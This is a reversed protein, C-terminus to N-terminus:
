TNRVVRSSTILSLRYIFHPHDIWLPNTRNKDSLLHDFAASLTLLFCSESSCFAFVTGLLYLYFFVNNKISGQGRTTHSSAMPAVTSRCVWRNYLYWHKATQILCCCWQLFSAPMQFLSLSVRLLVSFYQFWLLQQAKRCSEKSDECEAPTEEQPMRSLKSGRMNGGWTTVIKECRLKQLWVVEVCSFDSGKRSSVEGSQSDTM